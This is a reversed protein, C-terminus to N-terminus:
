QVFMFELSNLIAWVLNSPGHGEGSANMETLARTKEAQTPKRTLTALYLSEIQKKPLDEAMMTRILLSEPRTIMEQVRGNMLMLVQPQSGAKSGGDVLERNSQGFERLFHGNPTPQELESARLLRMGGYSIIKQGGMMMTEDDTGASAISGGMNTRAAKRGQQYAEIKQAMIQGTTKELDIDVVRGILGTDGNKLRDPDGVVLTALSDWAQEATMRRLLPGQFFYPAGMPIAETTAARQWAQTNFMIRQFERLNFKLRVMEQGIHVLLEPNSAAKPDDVNRVPEAVGAGFARSWLRNAITVGFRPNTPHTLWGAFAQRLKEEKKTKNDRYADSSRDDKSWTIFKPKVPDGGKGDKYQYDMPLRLRNEKLDRVELRNADVIDDVLNEVKQAADANLAALEGKLREAADMTMGGGGMARTSTAGFFSALQYFQMQTWEAFPHDHCQACAVDTGLFISFTNALNDLLMGSDRLLYGTAGNSWMKGEASLMDYVMDNYPRNSAISKKLWAIYPQASAMDGGRDPNAVRLMDAFYNYLHSAYGPSDLLMDILKARKTPSTNILFATSEDLTPVRGIIDLYARRLFQEDSSPPNPAIDKKALMKNIIADMKAAAESVSLNVPVNVAGGKLSRALQQDDAKLNALPFRHIRGDATQLIIVDGEIGGFTGQVQRGSNDTWIRSASEAAQSSTSVLFVATLSLLRTKM